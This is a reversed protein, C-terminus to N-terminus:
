QRNEHKSKDRDPLSKTRLDTDTNGLDIDATLSDLLIDFTESETRTDRKIDRQSDRLQRDIDTQSDRMQRDRDIDRQGDTLLKDRDTDIHSDRFRRDHTRFADDSYQNGVDDVTYLSGDPTSLRCAYELKQLEEPARRDEEQFSVPPLRESPGGEQDM